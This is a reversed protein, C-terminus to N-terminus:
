IEVFFLKGAILSVETASAPHPMIGPHVPASVTSVRLTLPAATLRPLGVALM